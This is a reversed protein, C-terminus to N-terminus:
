VRLFGTKKIFRTTRKFAKVGVSTTLWECTVFSKNIKEEEELSM